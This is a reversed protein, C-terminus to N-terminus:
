VSAAVTLPYCTPCPQSVFRTLKPVNEVRTRNERPLQSGSRVQLPHNREGKCTSAITPCPLYEVTYRALRTSVPVCRRQTLQTLQGSRARGPPKTEGSVPARPKPLGGATALESRERV